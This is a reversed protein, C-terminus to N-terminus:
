RVSQCNLISNGQDDNDHLGGEELVLKTDGELFEGDLGIVTLKVHNDIELDGNNRLSENENGRDCPNKKM